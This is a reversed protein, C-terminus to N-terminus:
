NTAYLKGLPISLGFKLNFNSSNYPIYSSNVGRVMCDTGIFFNIWRPCINMAFGCYTGYSSATGSVAIDFWSAPSYTGVLMFETITTIGFTTTWLAGASLCDYIKYEAGINLNADLYTTYEGKSSFEADGFDSGFDEFASLDNETSGEVDDFDLSSFGSFNISDGLTITSPNKWRIYGLDTLALSFTFDEWEYTAGLDIGLGSSLGSSMDFADFAIDDVAGVLPFGTIAANGVANLNLMLEKSNSSFYMQDIELNANAAGVLYKVKAGVTLNDNIRRSHGLALEAWANVDLGIGAMDYSSGSTGGVLFEFLSKPLNMSLKERVSIDFTNYGGWAHFGFGLVQLSFDQSITNNNNLGSLFEASDVDPHAFTALTGNDMPFLLKDISLNSNIGVNIDGLAPIAFYGYENMLAPNLEHRTTMRDMFYATKLTTQAAAVGISCLLLLTIIINKKMKM